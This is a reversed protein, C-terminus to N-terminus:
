PASAEAEPEDGSVLGMVTQCALSAIALVIIATIIPFFKTKM